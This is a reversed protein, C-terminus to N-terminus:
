QASLAPCYRGELLEIIFLRNPSTGVLVLERDSAARTIM